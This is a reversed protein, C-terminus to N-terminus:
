RLRPSPLLRVNWVTCNHPRDLLGLAVQSRSVAKVARVVPLNDEERLLECHSESHGVGCISKYGITELTSGQEDKLVSKRIAHFPAASLSHFRAQANAPGVLPTRWFRLERYISLLLEGLLDCPM